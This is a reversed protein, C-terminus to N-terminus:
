KTNILKSLKSGIVEKIFKKDILNKITDNIERLSYIFSGHEKKIEHNIRSILKEESVLSDNPIINYIISELENILKINSFVKPKAYHTQM